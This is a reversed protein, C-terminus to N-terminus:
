IPEQIPPISENLNRILATFNIHEPGTILGLNSTGDLRSTGDLLESEIRNGGMSSPMPAIITRISVDLNGADLPEGTATQGDLYTYGDLTTSGDLTSPQYSGGILDCGDLTDFGAVVFRRCKELTIQGRLDISDLTILASFSYIAAVILSVLQSRAPAYANCIAVAERQHARNWAVDGINLRVSYEAWSNATFRISSVPASLDSDGELWGVGDLLEGGATIWEQYLEQHEILRSDSYGIASLAQEVAWPTGKKRHWAISGAIVARQREIPWSDNWFDVSLAWALWPLLDEPCTDSNWLSRIVEPSLHDLRGTQELARELTTSNVPLLSSM